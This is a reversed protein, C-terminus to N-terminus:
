GGRAKLWKGKQAQRTAEDTPRYADLFERRFEPLRDELIAKRLDAMLRLIFRLNHISALRLGLLEKARFLHWLYAASFSRCTYCDCSEQVPGAM